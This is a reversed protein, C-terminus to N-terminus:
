HNKRGTIRFHRTLIEGNEDVLTLVHNGEQPSFEFQHIHTTQGIYEGNFHWFITSNPKRHAVEFVASGYSGDMQRPIFIVSHERPYIMDMSNLRGADLCDSRVPPMTRYGPNKSRYYWEQVPPLVFWSETVINAVQECDSNVRFLKDSSLHILTHYPCVPSELGKEQVWISDTTTCYIGAKHGSERCIEVRVMEDYPQLFWGGSPLISFLRFMVPAAASVGTLGPRGEGSANGIWVGVVFDPTTGIAWADRNGYSTGTKWAVKGKSTFLEWAAEEDPRNVEVLSEWTLWISAASIGPDKKRRLSNKEEQVGHYNLLPEYNQIDRDRYDNLFNSFGRYIGCLEWLSSEAGGLIISLGYHSSPKTLSNMELKKMQDYFKQVGFEQLMRVSPVNLSRSLSRKAPVVGDYSLAFNKPSYGAIQTPIDAVLSGPLILGDELMAAFLFPKLISGTSRQATIIDVHHGTQRNPVPRTNGVYALIKGTRVDAILVAGNYIENFRLSHMQSELIESAQQQLVPDISSKVRKGRESHYISNTLHYVMQPLPEPREPLIELKSLRCTEESIFGKEELRDLLRNRKEELLEHNKGPFILSPSNPLVALTATEAWSLNHPSRGFYRWAAAELGVVNGGFPANTAYLKLINEKSYAAELRLALYMEIIKEGYTRNKQQRYLRIVQMSITSGGSVTKGARINQRMARLLSAPNVGPHYYFWRDEFNLLAMKFKYPISDPEPFRWQGDDAIRAGLLHGNSDEVVTCTPHIFLIKPLSFIFLLLFIIVGFGLIIFIKHTRFLKLSNQM